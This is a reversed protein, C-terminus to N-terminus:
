ATTQPPTYLARGSPDELDAIGAFFATNDASAEVFINFGIANSPVGVPGSGLPGLNYTLTGSRMLCGKIMPGGIDVQAIMDVCAQDANCNGGTQCLSVCVGLECQGSDCNGDTKCAQGPGANGRRKVCFPLIADSSGDGNKDVPNVWCTNGTGCDAD